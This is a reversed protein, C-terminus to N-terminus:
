KNVLNGLGIRNAFKEQATTPAPSIPSGPQAKVKKTTLECENEMERWPRKVLTEQDFQDMSLTYQLFPKTPTAKCQYNFGRKDVTMRSEESTEDYTEVFEGDAKIEELSM